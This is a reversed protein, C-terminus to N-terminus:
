LKQILKEKQSGELKSKINLTKEQQIEISTICSELISNVFFM